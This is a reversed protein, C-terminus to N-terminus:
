SVSVTGLIEFGSGARNAKREEALANFQAKTMTNAELREALAINETGTGVYVRGTDGGAAYDDYGLEGKSLLGKTGNTNHKNIFAM